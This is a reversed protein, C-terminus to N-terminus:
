PGMSMEDIGETKNDMAEQMDEDIMQRSAPSYSGKMTRLSISDVDSGQDGLGDPVIASSGDSSRGERMTLNSMDKTVGDVGAKQEESYDVCDEPKSLPTVEQLTINVTSKGESANQPPPDEASGRGSDSPTIDNNAAKKMVAEALKNAEEQLNTM